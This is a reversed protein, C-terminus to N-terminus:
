RRHGRSAGQTKPVEELQTLEIEPIAFEKNSYPCPKAPHVEPHLLAAVLGGRDPDFVRTLHVGCEKCELVPLHFFKMTIFEVVHEVTPIEDFRDAHSNTTQHEGLRLL